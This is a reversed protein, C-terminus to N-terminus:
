AIHASPWIMCSVWSLPHAFPTFLPLGAMARRMANAGSRIIAMRSMPATGVRMPQPSSLLPNEPASGPSGTLPSDRSATDLLSDTNTEVSKEVSIAAKKVRTAVRKVGRKVEREREM